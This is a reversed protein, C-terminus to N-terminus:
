RAAFAALFESIPHGETTAFPCSQDASFDQYLASAYPFRLWEVSVSHASVSIDYLQLFVNRITLSLYM